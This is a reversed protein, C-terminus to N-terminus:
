QSLERYLELLREQEAEWSYRARVAARGREGMARAEAPHTLLHMLARAHAAADDASVLIGCHAEQVIAAMFGLRSAVVPRGAAMYELLKLPITHENNPTARFPIWGVTTAAVVAPVAAAPVSGRFQVGAETHWRGGDRPLAPPLGSWDVRGTVQIEADATLARLMRGAWWLTELGRQRTLLGTYGVVPAPQAPLPAITGFVELRPYNHVAVARAGRRRFGEAMHENVAVVASLRGAVLTEVAHVTEAAMRRLPAPLWPRTRIEDRYYEHADYIVPRGTLLRLLLGLPLLEPDHFHYCDAHLRLAVRLMRGWLLPRGLRSRPRPLAWVHVGHGGGDSDAGAVLTVRYGAAALSRAQRQFIRPDFPEHVSTLVVVHRARQGQKAM